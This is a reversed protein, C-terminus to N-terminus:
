EKGTGGPCISVLALLAALAGRSSHLQHKERTSNLHHGLLLYIDRHFRSFRLNHFPLRTTQSSRPSPPLGPVIGESHSARGWESLPNGHYMSLECKWSLISCFEKEKGSVHQLNIIRKTINTLFHKEKSYLAFYYYNIIFKQVRFEDM